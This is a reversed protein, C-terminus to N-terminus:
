LYTAGAGAAAMNLLRLTALGDSVDPFRVMDDAVVPDEDAEMFAVSREVIPEETEDRTDIVALLEALKDLIPEEEVTEGRIDVNLLEVVMVEVEKEGDVTEGSADEV